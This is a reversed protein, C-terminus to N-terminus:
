RVAVTKMVRAIEARAPAAKLEAEEAAALLGRIAAQGDRILAEIAARHMDARDPNVLMLQGLERVVDILSSSALRLLRPSEGLSVVAAALKAVESLDVSRAGQAAAIEFMFERWTRSGIARRRALL